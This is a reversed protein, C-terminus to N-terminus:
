GNFTITSGTVTLPTPAAAAAYGTALMMVLGSLASIKSANM